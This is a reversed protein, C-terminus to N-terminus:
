WRSIDAAIADLVVLCTICFGIAIVIKGLDIASEKKQEQQHKAIALKDYRTHNM